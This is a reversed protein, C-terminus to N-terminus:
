PLSGGIFVWGAVMAAVRGGGWEWYGWKPPDCLGRMGWILPTPSLDCSSVWLVVLGPTVGRQPRPQTPPWLWGDRPMLLVGASSSSSLPPPPSTTHDGKGGGGEGGQIQWPGLRPGWACKGVTPPLDPPAVAARPSPLGWLEPCTKVFDQKNFLGGAGPLCLVWPAPPPTLVM